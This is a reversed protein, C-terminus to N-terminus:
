EPPRWRLRSVLEHRLLKGEDNRPLRAVSVFVSPVQWGDLHACCHERVRGVQLGGPAVLVAVLVKRGDPRAAGVVACDTVGDASALVSEIRAPDVKVGGLNIVADARADLFVTGDSAIRARDSSLFWGDAFPQLKGANTSGERHAYRSAMMPSRLRLLGTSGPPLPVGQEDIVQAEVWPALSGACEPQTGMLLPDLIAVVGIETAGYISWLNACLGEQLERRQSATAPAGGILLTRLSPAPARSAGGAARALSLANGPSTVLMDVGLERITAWTRPDAVRGLAVRKGLALGRMWFSMGFSVAVGMLIMTCEGELGRVGSLLASRRIASGHSFLIPKPAGTSGSSFAIRWPSEESVRSVPAAAAGGGAEVLTGVTCRARAVPQAPDIRTRANLVLIAPPHLEALEAASGSVAVSIGGAWAVALSLAVNDLGDLELAVLEGPQLGLAVLGSALLEVHELLQGYRMSREPAHLAWKAPAERARQVFADVVNM